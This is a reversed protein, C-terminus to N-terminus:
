KWSMARAIGPWPSGPSPNGCCATGTRAARVTDNLWELKPALQLEKVDLSACPKCDAIPGLKEIWQHMVTEAAARDPAALVLPMVRLLEFDWQRQGTTVVPHHYKIFGWVKGLLVLNDTQVPTLAGLRIRSGGDFEHDHVESFAYGSVFIWLCLFQRLINKLM